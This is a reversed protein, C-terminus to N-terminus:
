RWRRLMMLGGACLLGLSAPEPIAGPLGPGIQVQVEVPRADIGLFAVTWVQAFM